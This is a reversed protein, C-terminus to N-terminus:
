FIERVKKEFDEDLYYEAAAEIEINIKLRELEQRLKELGANIIEPTNKFHDSMIHPTTILKKFGLEQMKLILAISDEMSKSGDDIGPILHSHIDTNLSAFDKFAPSVEKKNFFNSFLSM